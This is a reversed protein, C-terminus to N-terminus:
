HRYPGKAYERKGDALVGIFDDSEVFKAWNADGPAVQRLDVDCRHKFDRVIGRLENYALAVQVDWKEQDTYDVDLTLNYLDWHNQLMAVCDAAKQRRAAEEPSEEYDTVCEVDGRAVATKEDGTNGQVGEGEEDSKIDDEVDEEFAEEVEDEYDEEDPPPTVARTRRLNHIYRMAFLANPYKNRRAELAVAAKEEAKCAVAAEAWDNRTWAATSGGLKFAGDPAAKSEAWKDARCSGGTRVKFTLPGLAEYLGPIPEPPHPSTLLFGARYLGLLRTSPTDPEDLEQNWSSLSAAKALLCAVFAFATTYVMADLDM